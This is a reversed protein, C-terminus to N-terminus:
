AENRAKAKGTLPPEAIESTAALAAHIRRLRESLNIVLGRPSRRPDTDNMLLALTDPLRALECANVNPLAKATSGWAGTMLSINGLILAIDRPSPGAMAAAEAREFHRRIRREWLDAITGAVMGPTAGSEAIEIAFVLRHIQDPEYRVRKGKGPSVGLAGLKQWFTLRARFAGLDHKDVRYASVLAAEVRNYPYDVM